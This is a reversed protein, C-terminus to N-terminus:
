RDPDQRFRVQPGSKLEWPSPLLMIRALPQNTDGFRMETKPFFPCGTSIPASFTTLIFDKTGDHNLDLPITHNLPINIHTPTYVIEAEVSQASALVSVGAASAALAYANLRQHLSESLSATKGSGSVRKM